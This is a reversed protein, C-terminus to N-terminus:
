LKKEGLKSIRSLLEKECAKCIEICLERPVIGRRVKASFDWNFEMTAWLDHPYLSPRTKGYTKLRSSDQPHKQERNERFGDMGQIGYRSGRPARVHCPSKPSCVPKPMWEKSNTWIDTAKQYPTGYQCYTVTKRPLDQMFSMKRLMARPNEIFFLKPQIDNILNITHKVVNIAEITETNKPQFAGNEIKTWNKYVTMISFKQCPPSAWIVDPKFSIDAVEIKSIDAIMDPKFQKDFDVTFTEHGREKCVNSFSGTGSFLELVKMYKEGHAVDEM